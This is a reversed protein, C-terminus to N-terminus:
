FIIGGTHLDTESKGDGDTGFTVDKDEVFDKSDAVGGKLLFTVIIKRFKVFFLLSDDEDSVVHVTNAFEAVAGDKNFFAM